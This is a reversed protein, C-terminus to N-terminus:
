GRQRLLRGAGRRRGGPASLLPPGRRRLGRRLAGAARHHPGGPLPARAGPGRGGRRPHPLLRRGAPAPLRAAGPPAGARPLPPPLSRHDGDDHLAGARAAARGRAGPAAAGRVRPPPRPAARGAGPRHGRRPRAGAPPEHLGVTLHTAIVELPFAPDESWRPTSLEAERVARHGYERCFAAFSELFPAAEPLAELRRLLEAGGGRQLEDRLGLDQALHALEALRLGPGASSLGDLGTFLESQLPRLEGGAAWLLGQLLLYSALANSSVALLIEGTRNFLGGLEDFVRALESWHLRSLDTALFRERAAAFDREHARAQLPGLLQSRLVRLGSRPLRRLFRAPSAKRYAGEMIAPDLGGAVRALIGPSLFPIGSAISMFESLNLYIRGRLNGILPADPPLDLGLSGFAHEFGRRSFDQIISWTMPTAVGPLAEGVNVNSWVTPRGSGDGSHGGSATIPRAQLLYLRGGALAWEIDQPAGLSREVARGLAALRLLLAEDVCPGDRRARELGRSRTGGEPDPEVLRLKPALAREVVRGARDLTFTDAPGGSVVTEGLGWAASVLMQSADGTVPNATFLVGAVEAPVLTQVVVAMAPAQGIVLGNQPRQARHRYALHEASWLSAWCKRVAQLLELYGTVNLFSAAQGAHSAEASDEGTGSSRVALRPPAGSGESLTAYAEALAQELGDPLAAGELARRLQEVTSPTQEVCDLAQALTSRYAETSLCVARPVPFGELALRRLVAGKGGLLAPADEESEGPSQLDVVWRSVRVEVVPAAGGPAAPAGAPPRPAPAPVSAGEVLLFCAPRGAM